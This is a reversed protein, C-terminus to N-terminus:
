ILDNRNKPTERVQDFSALIQIEEKLSNYKNDELLIKRQILYLDLLFEVDPFMIALPIGPFGGGTGVDLIKSGKTFQIIESDFRNSGGILM